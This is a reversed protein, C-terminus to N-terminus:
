RARPCASCPARGVVCARLVYRCGPCRYETTRYQSFPATGGKLDVRVPILELQCVPCGYAYHFTDTEVAPACEPAPGVDLRNCKTTPKQLVPNAELVSVGFAAIAAFCIWHRMKM